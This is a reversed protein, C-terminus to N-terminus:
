RTVTSQPIESQVVVYGKADLAALIDIARLLTLGLEAMLIDLVPNQNTKKCM